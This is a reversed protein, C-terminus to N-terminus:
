TGDDEALVFILGTIAAGVAHISGPVGVFLLTTRLPQASIVIM